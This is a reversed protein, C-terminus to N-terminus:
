TCVTFMEILHIYVARVYHDGFLVVLPGVCLWMACIPYTIKCWCAHSLTWKLHMNTQTANMISRGFSTTTYKCSETARHVKPTPDWFVLGIKATRSQWARPQDLFSRLNEEQTPKPNQTDPRSSSTPAHFGLKYLISVAKWRSSQSERVLTLCYEMAQLTLPL